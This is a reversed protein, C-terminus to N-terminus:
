ARDGGNPTPRGGPGSNLTARTPAKARGAPSISSGPRTVAERAAADVQAVHPLGQAACAARSGARRGVIVDAGEARARLLGLLPIALLTALGGAVYAEGISGARSLYGLGSQGLTGGANGIMSDLSVVSARHESAVLEHLYAQKVPGGVGMAAAVLVFLAVALSFSGALGVGVAAAAQVAAAWLLLTTRRGCFRGFWDAVANGGITALSIAAAVGGAVWVADRGLLELFHPQWAYFAWTLFGWQLLSVGMLLRLSRREWGYALSARALRKMEAPLDAWRLTRPSFGLDHMTWWAVPLVAALAAARVLYPLALDLSGLLGGGVTGFLMAAGTVMSGRAFVSDLRGDYGTSELADVLWAEVAGSYFTFGLGMLVSVAAFAPVGGGAAAVGVYALTTACLISVSLLFSARRGRTDAFVGTPIEFLVMGSTFAANAVFVGFIDLGARLLFLTNVGWILAAALTYLGAIAYYSGIVRRSTVLLEGAFRREAAATLPVPPDM